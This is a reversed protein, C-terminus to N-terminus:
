QYEKNLHLRMDLFGKIDEFSFDTLFEYTFYCDSTGPKEYVMDVRRLNTNVFLHYYEPLLNNLKNIIIILDEEISYKGDTEIGDCLKM